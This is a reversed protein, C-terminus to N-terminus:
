EGQNLTPLGLFDDATFNKSMKIEIVKYGKEKAVSLIMDTKTEERAQDEQYNKMLEELNDIM